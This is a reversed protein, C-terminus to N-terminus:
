NGTENLIKEVVWLNIGDNADTVTDWQTELNSIYENVENETWENKSVASIIKVACHVSEKIYM